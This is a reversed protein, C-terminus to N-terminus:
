QEFLRAGPARDRENAGNRHEIGAQLRQTIGAGVERSWSSLAAESVTTSGLKKLNSEIIRSTRDTLDRDGIEPNRTLLHRKEGIM